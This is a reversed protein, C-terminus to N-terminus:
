LTRSEDSQESRWRDIAPRIAHWDEDVCVGDIWSILARMRNKDAVLGAIVKEQRKAERKAIRGDYGAERDREALVTGLKTKLVNIQKKLRAVEDGEVPETTAPVGPSSPRESM